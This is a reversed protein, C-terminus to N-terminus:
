PKRGKLNVLLLTLGIGALFAIGIGAYMWFPNAEAHEEELAQPLEKGPEVSKLLVEDAKGDVKTQIHISYPKEAPFNTELLYTGVDTQKYSFKVQSDQMAVVMLEAKNIPENTVKDSIFVTLHADEGAHVPAYRLVWEYLESEGSLTFWPKGSEAKSPEPHAHEEGGHAFTGGYILLLLIYLLFKRM